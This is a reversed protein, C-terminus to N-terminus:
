CAPAYEIPEAKISPSRPMLVERAILLLDATNIAGDSNMDGHACQLTGPTRYGLVLQEAILVDAADILGDPDDWPALDGDGSSQMDMGVILEGTIILQSTDWVLPAPLVAASTDIAGFTGNISGWNLIDFRDGFAPVYGNLLEIKLTTSNISLEGGVNIQDHETCPILGAIEVRLFGSSSFAWDGSTDPFCAIAAQAGTTVSLMLLVLLLSAAKKLTAHCVPYIPPTINM